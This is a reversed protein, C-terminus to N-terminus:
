LGCMLNVGYRKSPNVAEAKILIVAHDLRAHEALVITDFEQFTPNNGLHGM